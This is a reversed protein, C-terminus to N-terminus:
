ETTSLKVMVFMELEVVFRASIQVADCFDVVTTRSPGKNLSLGALM